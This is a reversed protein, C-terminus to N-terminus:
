DTGEVPGMTPIHLPRCLIPIAYSSAVFSKRAQCLKSNNRCSCVRAADHPQLTSLVSPWPKAQDHDVRVSWVVKRRRQTQVAGVLDILLYNCADAANNPQWASIQIQKPGWDASEGAEQLLPDSDVGM